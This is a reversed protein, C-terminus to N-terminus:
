LFTLISRYMHIIISSSTKKGNDNSETLQQPAWIYTENAIKANFDGLM